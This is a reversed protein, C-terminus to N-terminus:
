VAISAVSQPQGPQPVFCRFWQYGDKNNAPRTFEQFKTYWGGAALEAVVNKITARSLGTHYHTELDSPDHQFKAKYLRYALVLRHGIPLPCDYLLPVNITTKNSLVDM